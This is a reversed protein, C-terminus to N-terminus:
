ERSQSDPPGAREKVKSNTPRQIKRFAPNVRVRAPNRTPTPKSTLQRSGKPPLSTQPVIPTSVSTHMLLVPMSRTGGFLLSRALFLRSEKAKFRSATAIADITNLHPRTALRASLGTVPLLSPSTHNSNSPSKGRVHQSMDGPSLAHGGIHHPHHTAKIHM